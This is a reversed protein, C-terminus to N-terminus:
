KQGKMDNQKEYLDDRGKCLLQALVGKKYMIYKESLKLGMKPSDRMDSGWTCAAHLQVCLEPWFIKIQSCLKM